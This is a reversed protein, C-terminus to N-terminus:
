SSKGKGITPMSIKNFDGTFIDVFSKNNVNLSGQIFSVLFMRGAKFVSSELGEEKLHDCYYLLAIIIEEQDKTDYQSIDKKWLLEIKNRQSQSTQSQSPKKAKM